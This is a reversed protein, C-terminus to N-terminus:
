EKPPDVQRIISGHEESMILISIKEIRNMSHNSQSVYDFRGRLDTYGDKHFEMSGDSRKSYVKVYAKSIFKGDTVDTVQLQGYNEVIQVDLSHAFYPQSKAQDGAVLEVLVNKNGLEAPLEFDHRGRGKEDAKLEVPQTVNPRIMSFGDLEDQAFPSRSFLLEIDMEYFNVVVSKLNQHNIKVTGSEVKFDFSEASSALETQKQTQDKEDITTTEGGRIEEVQALINKFRNRWLDVPYDAWVAAKDAAADPDERYMDLYADCYAYQIKSQLSDENASEFHALAAEIRDQLLLYYTVVLHDDPSLTRRYALVNMLQEYQNAFNPNLIKREPGLKHSRANILPWYERHQYWNREVPNLTLLESNLYPGSQSAIKDAHVLFERLSEPDNHKTSYSWLTHNYAYRNRLTEITRLFFAKNKMRFAIKDLELRLVNKQKLFDIVEEDTGNQSVYAWSTKDLKAPQDTVLFGVPDAVALVKEDASVHAPYHSFQGATPFYFSYDFTKTSFATLDLQITKTDQSGSCAVSGEPVQILLEVARPTSTPNTIVVQGGYLTHAHFEDSVFKDFRVGDEHRYRDNKQYFNESVLVTTNGNEIIANQVQQHLAITPGGATYTMKNDVFEPKQQPRKLPLDLVALAFMIETFNRNAESFYPSLFTGGDHNAYDRWFRNAEVLKATQQEPLLRYYNNEMWEKTPNLRRYLNKTEERLEGLQEGDFYGFQSQQKMPVAFNEVASEAVPADVAYRQTRGDSAIGKRTGFSKSKKSKTRRELEMITGGAAFGRGGRSQGPAAPAASKELMALGAIEESAEEEDMAVGLEDNLGGSRGRGLKRSYKQKAENMAIGFDDDLSMSTISTDYLADFRSRPTPSMMYMETVNRVIDAARNELRQSLLIREVANLRAYKWPDTYQDLNDKLLWHDLFTKDRKNRLHPTVVDAFFKSDKKSLFFNLEHCANKSYLEQKKEEAQDLWTLIFEFKKLNTDNNITTLLRYVDGLDDYYQFKSSVIDEILLQDNESMVEIKKRQTFHGGADLVNALRGDRPKLPSLGANITRQCTSQEDVAVVRIHQALGFESRDIKVQGNKDVALNALMVAGGGLFDLNAFDQNGDAGAAQRRMRDMRDDAQAGAGGFSSGDAADQNGNNTQQTDWPNLLLSPRELMNGPYHKAFKRDLIYQYEDGIKRGQMYVSKRISPRYIWPENDQVTALLGFANFAPQYRNAFVHVRANKGANSLNITVTKDNAEITSIQLPNSVRKELHRHEGVWVNAASTGETVRIEINRYHSRNTDAVYHLRFTYDGAALENIIFMGDELSLANLHDRVFTGSRKELLSVRTADIAQLDAPAAILIPEGALSNITQSYTQDDTTLYWSKKSGGAIAVKISEVNKLKGLEVRGKADSQLDVDVSNKFGIVSLSVRVSQKPRAEGTKGTVELFYGSNTPVLHVDQIKDSSDIQNINYTQTSTVTEPAGRSVNDITASLTMSLTKLRPPVVFECLTEKSESLELDDFTKTSPLGDQNESTIVLKTNKLLKLPVPNGGAIRLAPRILINAKNSRTLSERDVVLAASFQYKEAVHDFTQLCSFNGQTIIANARGAQTSYPVLIRGNEDPSYRSGGIWLNADEAVNRDEDIVAFLQGAATSQGTIQLRGKRILARSSKGGAIFDVIYVGRQELQPFKFSRKIRLAPADNYTFTQEFNPVLGDLNINTDIESNHKRYFNETNVEFIKVLLKNVNKLDLELEVLDNPAFYEPNTERFDLDIRKMLSQYEEPNLSSAWKESDGLGNLIKVTAFQRKLYKSEIDTDFKSTDNEELLFHHLFAQVLPEDNNIPPLRTQQNFNAGLNVIHSRSKVNKILSRHIYGVNRPLQLYTKFLDFDFKGQSKEFELKRYLICAKLSNHSSSLRSAYNWLRDLYQQKEETDAQWNVDNSPYLKGLYINVFNTQGAVKPQKRALEDLQKITLAKHIQMKGFGGSDREKLDQVILDVVEPFDPYRLRQLLHRRQTKTLKTEALLRLGEETFGDTNQYRTRALNTLRNPDLLSSALKTPLDRQTQPIERQHNFNLNLQQTLHKLTTAPDDSYKLLAQRNRIQNVQGTYGFRKIWPKLLADVKDLQQNNQHHLCHFFYYPQTGPVLQKLVQDRDSSLAFAEVFGIEQAAASQNFSGSDCTIAFLLACFAFRGFNSLQHM